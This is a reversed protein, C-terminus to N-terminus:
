DEFLSLDNTLKYKITSVMEDDMLTLLDEIFQSKDGSEWKNVIDMIGDVPNVKQPVTNTSM